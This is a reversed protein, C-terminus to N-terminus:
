SPRRKGTPRVSNQWQKRAAASSFEATYQDRFEKTKKKQRERLGSLVSKRVSDDDASKKVIRRATACDNIDGLLAQIEKLRDILLPLTNPYLPAFLDLTYRYNKAAIRFSHIKHAPMKKAAAAEGREFHETVMPPLIRQAMVEVPMARFANDASKLGNGSVSAARWRAALNRETWRELSAALTAAAAERREQIKRILAGSDPLEMRNILHIAIDFDRTEGAQVMIRKLARRLRKSEARPFCPALASLLRIFRRTAVRLDHMEEVGPFKAARVIRTTVRSLLKGAETKAFTGTTVVVM